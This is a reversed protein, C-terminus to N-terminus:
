KGAPARQQRLRPDNEIKGVQNGLDGIWGSLIGLFWLVFAGFVAIVVGIVIRGVVREHWPLIVEKCLDTVLVSVEGRIRADLGGDLEELGPLSGLGANQAHSSITNQFGAALFRIHELAFNVIREVERRRPVFRNSKLVRQLSELLLTEHSRLGDLYVRQLEKVVAPSRGLGHVALRNLAIEAQRELEIFVSKRNGDYLDTVTALLLSMKRTRCMM